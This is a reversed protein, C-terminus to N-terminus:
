LSGQFKSSILDPWRTPARDSEVKECELTASRTKYLVCRGTLNASEPDFLAINKGDKDLLSQYIIGHYGHSRFTEALVQTPVYDLHPEDYTVPKSFAFGIDGWVGKEKTNAEPPEAAEAPALPSAVELWFSPQTNLSCDVLLCDRVTTFRAITMYSGLWPRMESIVASPSSALYLCPIGKPNVRGDGVFEAKPIMREPPYPAKAAVEIEEGDHEDNEDGEDAAYNLWIKETTDVCGRQGRFLLTGVPLRSLRQEVTEVVTKLFERVVDDHVFRAKTKVSQEFQQYSHLSAFESLAQKNVGCREHAVTAPAGRLVL